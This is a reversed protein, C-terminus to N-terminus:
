LTENVDGLYQYYCAFQRWAMTEAGEGLYTLILHNLLTVLEQNAPVMGYLEDKTTRGDISEYYYNLLKQTYDAGGQKSFDFEGAEIIELLTHGNADFFNPHAFNIYVISGLEDNRTVHHYLGDDENYAAKEAIYIYKGTTLDTTWLGEGTTMQVLKKASDGLFEIIFDYKGVDGPMFLAMSVYVTQGEELYMYIQANNGYSPNSFRDYDNACDQSAIEVMNENFIYIAPDVSGTALTKFAYAGSREATFIFKVGRNIQLPYKNNAETVVDATVTYANMFSMGLVPNHNEGCIGNQHPLGYHEYYYCFELWTKSNYGKGVKTNFHKAFDDLMNKLTQDVPILGVWGQMEYCDYMVQNYNNGNYIFSDDNPTEPLYWFSLDYLSYYYQTNNKDDTYVREDWRLEAWPTIGRLDAFILSGASGDANKVHYYGDDGLIVETYNDYRTTSTTTGTACERIMDIAEDELNIQTINLNRIGAFENDASVETDKQYVFALNLTQNQQAVYLRQYQWGNSNGSHAAVDERNILVYLIDGNEETNVNYEYSLVDGEKLELDVYLIAYSNNFNANSAYVYTNGSEGGNMFPWSYEDTEEPYYSGNTWGIASAIVDSSPMTVNPEVREIVPEDTNNDDNNNDGPKQVYDDSTYNEFLAKWVNADTINGSEIHAVVGYRDIIVTTPYATVGFRKGLASNPDRGMMFNLGMEGKYAAIAQIGDDHSLAVIELDNKYSQYATEIAPFEARCPQCGRYWFNLMVVKKEELLESLTYTGGETETFSFDHMVDGVSYVYGSPATTEIVKSEFVATFKNNTASTVYTAGNPIFYGNPLNSFELTYEDLPMALDVKGNISIGSKVQTEGKLARVRVGNLNLGGKSVISIQYTNVQPNESGSNESGGNDGPNVIIPGDGPNGGNNGQETSPANPNEINNTCGGFVASVFLLTVILLLIAIRKM